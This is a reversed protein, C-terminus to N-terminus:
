ISGSDRTVDSEGGKHDEDEEKKRFLRAASLFCTAGGFFVAGLIFHDGVIHFVAAAFMLVAALNLITSLNKNM